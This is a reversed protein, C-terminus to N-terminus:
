QSRVSRRGNWTLRERCDYYGPQGWSTEHVSLLLVTQNGPQIQHSRVPGGYASVYGNGSSMYVELHCGASGCNQGGLESCGLRGNDVIYDLVGDENIDRAVEFGPSVTVRGGDNLCSRM